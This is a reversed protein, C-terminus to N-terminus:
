ISAHFVAKLDGHYLKYYDQNAHTCKHYYKSLLFGKLDVGDLHPPWYSVGLENCSEEIIKLFIKFVKLRVNSDELKFKSFDFIEANNIIHEIDGIIPPPAIFHLSLDGVKNKIKSILLSRRSWANILIDRIIESPLIQKEFNIGDICPSYIDFPAWKQEMFIVNHENGGILLIIAKYKFSADNLLEDIVDNIKPSDKEENIKLKSDIFCLVFESEWESSSSDIEYLNGGGSLSSKLDGFSRSFYLAHSSGIVLIKRSDNM